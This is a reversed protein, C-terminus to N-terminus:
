GRAVAIYSKTIGFFRERVLEADPFLARMMRADLLHCNQVSIVAESVSTARPRHGFGRRILLSVRVPEPLWHWLPLSFHPEWPFWFSPTQIFYASGLRIVERAFATMRSWDGVHEITSNSHILDFSADALGTACADGTVVDFLDGNVGKTATMNFLTIHCKKQHLFDRDIIKWYGDTGGLDLIKCRGRQAAIREIMTTLYKARNVRFRFGLSRPNGYDVRYNLLM